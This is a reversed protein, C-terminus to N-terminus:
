FDRAYYEQSYFRLQELYNLFEVAEEGELFDKQMGSLAITNKM